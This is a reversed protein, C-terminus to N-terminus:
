VHRDALNGNRHSMSEAVQSPDDKRIRTTATGDDRVRGPTADNGAAAELNVHISVRLVYRNRDAASFTVRLRLGPWELTVDRGGDGPGHDRRVPAVLQPGYSRKIRGSRTRVSASSSTIWRTRACWTTSSPSGSSSSTKRRGLKVARDEFRPTDEDPVDPRSRAEIEAALAVLGPLDMGMQAADLLQFASTESPIAPSPSAHSVQDKRHGEPQDFWVLM